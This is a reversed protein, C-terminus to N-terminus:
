LPSRAPLISPSHLRFELLTLFLASGPREGVPRLRQARPEIAASSRAACGSRPLHRLDPQARPQRALTRRERRDRALGGLKHTASWLWSALRLGSIPSAAGRAQAQCAQPAGLAASSM